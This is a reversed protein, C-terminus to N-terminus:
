NRESNCPTRCQAPSSDPAVVILVAVIAMWGVSMAGVAILLVMPGITAGLCYVGGFQLGSLVAAEIRGSARLRWPAAPVVAPLMMAAMMAVWASAIVWALASAAFVGGATASIPMRASGRVGEYSRM